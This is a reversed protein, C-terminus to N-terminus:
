CSRRCETATPSGGPEPCTVGACSRTISVTVGITSVLEFTIAREAVLSGSPDRLRVRVMTEGPELNSYEAVRRGDLYSEGFTATASANMEATAGAEILAVEVDVRRQGVPVAHGDQRGDSRPPQVHELVLVRDDRTRPHGLEHLAERPQEM